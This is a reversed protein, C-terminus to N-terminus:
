HAWMSLPVNGAIALPYAQQGLSQMLMEVEDVHHEFVAVKPVEHPVAVITLVNKHEVLREFILSPDVPQLRM